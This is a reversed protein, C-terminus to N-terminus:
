LGEFEQKLQSLQVEIDAKAIASIRKQAEASLYGGYIPRAQADLWRGITELRDQLENALALKAANM